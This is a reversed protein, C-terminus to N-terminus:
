FLREQMRSCGKRNKMDMTLGQEIIKELADLTISEKSEGAKGIIEM